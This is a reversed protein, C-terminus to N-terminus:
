HSGCDCPAFGSGDALCSQGGSCAAPGICAQTSGPVCARAPARAPPSPYSSPMAHAAVPASMPKAPTRKPEVGPGLCRVFAEARHSEVRKDGTGLVTPLDRGGLVEYARDKCVDEVHSLCVWLPEEGCRIRFSGDPMREHVVGQHACGFAWLALVLGPLKPLLLKRSM